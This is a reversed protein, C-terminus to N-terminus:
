STRIPFCNGSDLSELTHSPTAIRVCIKEPVVGDVLWGASPALNFEPVLDWIQWPNGGISADGPAGATAPDINGGFVHLHFGNATSFTTGGNDFEFLAVVNGDADVFADTICTWRLQSQILDSCIEDATHIRLENKVELM